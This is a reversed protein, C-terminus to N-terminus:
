EACISERSYWVKELARLTDDVTIKDICQSPNSFCEVKMCGACEIEHRLIIHQNGFPYWQRASQRASFMAICPIGMLAALHMSGTDNGCYVCCQSLIGATKLIDVGCCSYSYGKWVQILKDADGEEEPGGVIVFVAGTKEHWRQGVSIYKELPWRKSQMKSGPCIAVIKKKEIGWNFLQKIAWTENKKILCSKPISLFLNLEKKTISFLREYEEPLEKNKLKLKKLRYYWLLAQLFGTCRWLGMTRFFLFDRLITSPTMGEHPLYLLVDSKVPMLLQKLSHWRIVSSDEAYYAVTYSIYPSLRAVEEAWVFKSTRFKNSCYVIIKTPYQEAIRQIIPFSILTDGFQGQRFIIIRQKITSANM